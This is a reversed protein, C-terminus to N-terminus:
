FTGWTLLSDAYAKVDFRKITTADIKGDKILFATLVKGEEAPEAINSDLAEIAKTIQDQVSGGEGVATELAVIREGLASDAAQYATTIETKADTVAKTVSGEGTGNLVGIADTNAKEAKEAREREATIKGELATKDAAQLATDAKDLSAQVDEALKVKTVNADAIKDTVIAGAKITASIVNRDSIVVKIETGDEGTFVDVLDNVDLYLHSANGTGEATNIVFDIYKHGAPINSGDGAAATKLTAEKVLYDKPINIEEGVRNGGQKIVYTAFAENEAPALKEVTVAGATKNDGVKKALEAIAAEVTKAKLDTGAYAVDEAKGSKAIKALQDDLADVADKVIKKISGTVTEEGQIIALAEQITDIDTENTTIRTIAATLDSGNSLKIDGLFLDATSEASNEVYYFTKRDKPTLTEFAASTGRLFKVDYAM